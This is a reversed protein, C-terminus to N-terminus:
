SKVIEFYKKFEEETLWETHTTHGFDMQFIYVNPPVVNDYEGDDCHYILQKSKPEKSPWPEKYMVWEFEHNFTDCVEKASTETGDYFVVCM